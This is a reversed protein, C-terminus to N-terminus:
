LKKIKSIDLANGIVGIINGKHDKLPSKVVTNYLKSGDKLTVNEEVAISRNEQMVKLDHRRLLAAEAPWLDKDYKGILDKKKSLRCADLMYDNCGQYCGKRDKWFIIGPIHDCFQELYHQAANYDDSRSLKNLLDANNDFIRQLSLDRGILIFGTDLCREVTWLISVTHKTKKVSTEARVINGALVSSMDDPLCSMVSTDICLKTYNCGVVKEPRWGFYKTAYSNLATIRFDADLIIVIESCNNWASSLSSGPNLETVKNVAM